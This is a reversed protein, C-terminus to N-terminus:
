FRIRRPTLRQRSKSQTPREFAMNRECNLPKTQLSATVPITKLNRAHLLIQRYQAALTMQSHRFPHVLVEALTVTSTVAEFHGAAWPM